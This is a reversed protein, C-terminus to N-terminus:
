RAGPPKSPTARTLAVVTGVAAVGGVIAGVRLVIRRARRQKAPAVAVGSPQSAAVGSVKSPGAAATGLPKQPSPSSGQSQSSQQAEPTQPAAAAPQASQDKLNSQDETERLGSRIAGPSDPLEDISARQQRTEPETTSSSAAGASIAQQASAQFGFLLLGISALYVPVNKWVLM